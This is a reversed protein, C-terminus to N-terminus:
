SIKRNLCLWFRNFYIYLYLVWGTYGCKTIMQLSFSKQQVYWYSTWLYRDFCFGLKPKSIFISFKSLSTSKKIRPTVVKWSKMDGNSCDISFSFFCVQSFIRWCVMLWRENLNVSDFIKQKELKKMFYKKHFALQSTAGIWNCLIVRENRRFWSDYKWSVGVLHLVIAFSVKLSKILSSRLISYRCYSNGLTSRKLRVSSM